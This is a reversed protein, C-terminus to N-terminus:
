RWARSRSARESAPDHLVIGGVRMAGSRQGEDFAPRAIDFDFECTTGDKPSTFSGGRLKNYTVGGAVVTTSTWEFLNGSM